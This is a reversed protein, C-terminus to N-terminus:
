WGQHGAAGAYVIFRTCASVDSLYLSVRYHVRRASGRIRTICHPHPHPHPYLPSPIPAISIRIYIISRISPLRAITRSPEPRAPDMSVYELPPATAASARM